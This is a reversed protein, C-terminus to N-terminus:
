TGITWSQNWFVWPLTRHTGRRLYGALSTFSAPSRLGQDLALNLPTKNNKLQTEKRKSLDAWSAIGSEGTAAASQFDNM